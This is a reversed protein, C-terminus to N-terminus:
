GRRSLTRYPVNRSSNFGSDKYAQSARKILRETPKQLAGAGKGGSASLDGHLQQVVLRAIGFPDQSSVKAAVQQDLMGRYISAGPGSLGDPGLSGAQMEGILRQVFVAEFKEATRWLKSNRATTAPPQVSGRSLAVPRM